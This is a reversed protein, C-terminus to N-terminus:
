ITTPVFCIKTGDPSGKPDADYNTSQDGAKAPYCIMSLPELFHWGDGSRLDAVASDGCAYRGSRGCPSIDGVTVGALIEVNSPFPENWRRGRVLGNGMLLYEGNGLWAMHCQQLTPVAM